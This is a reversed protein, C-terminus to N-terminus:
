SLAKKHRYQPDVGKIRLNGQAKREMIIITIIIQCQKDM